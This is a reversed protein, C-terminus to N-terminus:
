PKIAEDPPPTTPSGTTLVEYLNSILRYRGNIIRLNEAFYLLEGKDASGYFRVDGEYRARAKSVEAEAVELQEKERRKWDSICNMIQEVRRAEKDNQKDM